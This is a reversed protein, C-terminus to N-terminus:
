GPVFVVGGGGGWGGEEEEEEEVEGGGGGAIGAGGGGGTASAPAAAAPIVDSEFTEDGDGSRSSSALVQARTTTTATTTTHEGGGGSSSSSSSSSISSSKTSSAAAVPALVTFEFCRGGVNIVDGVHLEKWEVKMAQGNLLTPNTYSFNTLMYAGNEDKEVLAHERSVTEKTICLVSSKARGISVPRTENIAITSGDDTCRLSASSMVITKSSSRGDPQTDMCRNESSERSAVHTSLM